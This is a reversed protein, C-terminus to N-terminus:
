SSIYVGRKLNKIKGQGKARYIFNRIQTDDFGTKERIGAVTVGKRSRRIIGVVTDYPSKSKTKSSGKKSTTKTGSRGIASKATAKESGRILTKKRRSTRKPIKARKKSPAVPDDMDIGFVDALDSEDIVRATKKKAKRLLKRTEDEVAQTILDNM